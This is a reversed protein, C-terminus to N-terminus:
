VSGVGQLSLLRPNVFYQRCSLTVFLLSLNLLTAYILKKTEECVAGVHVCTKGAATRRTDGRSQEDTM